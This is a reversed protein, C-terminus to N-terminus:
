PARIVPAPKPPQATATISAWAASSKEAAVAAAYLARAEQVNITLPKERIVPKGARLAAASAVAHTHDPTAVVVADIQNHYQDFMKRFDAVLPPVNGALRQYVAAAQREEQKSSSPWEAARQKWVELAKAVKRRDVDCLVSIGTNEYLHMASLFGYYSAYGAVGILALRLQENAQYGLATRSPAIVTAGLGIASATALFRRRSLRGAKHQSLPM